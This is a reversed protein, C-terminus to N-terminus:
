FIKTKELIVQIVMVIHQVILQFEGDDQHKVQIVLVIHQILIEIKSSIM